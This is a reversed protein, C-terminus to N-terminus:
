ADFHSECKSNNTAAKKQQHQVCTEDVRISEHNKKEEWKKLPHIWDSNPGDKEIQAIWISRCPPIDHTWFCHVFRVVIMTDCHYCPIYIIRADLYIKCNLLVHLLYPKRILLMSRLLEYVLDCRCHVTRWAVITYLHFKPIPALQMTSKLRWRCVSFPDFTHIM